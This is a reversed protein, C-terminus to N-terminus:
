IKPDNFMFYSYFPLSSLFEMEWTNLILILKKKKKRSYLSFPEFTSWPSILGAVGIPSRQVFSFAKEGKTTHVMACENKEHLIVSAFFRFNYIARPVDLQTALTVPKGQDQSEAKAFESAHQELLDAIHILYSSRQQPSLSSWMPFAQQAATVAQQIDHEGSRPLRLHVQETSPNISEICDQPSIFEGHIFNQLQIVPM